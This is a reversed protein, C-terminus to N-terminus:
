FPKFVMLWLVIAPIVYGSMVQGVVGSKQLLAQVEEPKAPPEAPYEKNGKMYPLGVLRRLKKYRNESSITMHVVVGVMLLISAWIWGKGWLHLMFAMGLGTLGMVVFAVAMGMLTSGSLDLMARIRAFDSEKRIKFAMAASAGHFLFFSIAGLVHVFILWQIVVPSV